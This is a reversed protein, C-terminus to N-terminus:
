RNFPAVTHLETGDRMHQYLAQLSSIGAFRVSLGTLAVSGATRAADDSAAAAMPRAPAAAPTATAVATSAATPLGGPYKTEAIFGAIAGISPYDFTQPLLLWL